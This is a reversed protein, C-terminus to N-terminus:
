CYQVEKLYLIANKIDNINNTNKMEISIYNKYINKINKIIDLHIKRKEIKNLYPESIHIHNILNINEYIININENNHIITGFDLNIKLAKNNIKKCFEIAEHTFNLFNTGYINPNPEIAICTNNSEAYESINTFFDIAIDFDSSDNLNRNKPCGFVINNCKIASAFDISKKVYNTIFERDIKSSFINENIGYLISQMSSIKLNYRKKIDDVIKIANKINDYPNKSIIRTPAIELGDIKNESMFSLIEEDQEQNWAINSVSLKM